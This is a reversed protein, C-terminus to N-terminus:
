RSGGLLASPQSSPVEAGAREGEEPAEVLPPTAEGEVGASYRVVIDVACGLTAALLVALGGLLASEARNLTVVRPKGRM